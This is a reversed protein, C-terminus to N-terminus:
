VPETPRGHRTGIRSCTSWPGRAQLEPAHETSTLCLSSDDGGPHRDDSRARVDSPDADGHQVGPDCECRGDSMKDGDVERAAELDGLEAAQSRVAEGIRSRTGAPSGSGTHKRHDRQAVSSLFLRHWSYLNSAPVQLRKPQAEAGTWPGAISGAPCRGRSSATLAARPQCCWRSLLARFLLDDVQEVDDGPTGPSTRGPRQAAAPSAAPSTSGPLVRDPDQGGPHHAVWSAAIVAVAGVAAVAATTRRQRRRSDRRAIVSQPPASLRRADDRLAQELSTGLVDPLDDM